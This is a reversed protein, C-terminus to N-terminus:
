CSKRFHEDNNEPKIHYKPHEYISRKGAITTIKVICHTLIGGGGSSNVNHILLPIKISGGSKGIRGKVDWTDGWDEGTSIDGWHFRCKLQSSKLRELIQIMDNPTEIHYYTSNIAGPQGPNEVCKYQKNESDTITPYNM